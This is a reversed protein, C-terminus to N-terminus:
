PWVRRLLTTLYPDLADRWAIWDHGGRTEAFTVEYGQARLADAMSRNNALNEEDAGCTMVVPVAPGAAARRVRSVFRLIRRYRAFGSEQRDFRHQFFSGSQLFLGAFASPARRQAHLMALAGLSAGAGIVPASGAVEPLIRTTLLRAYAVSASYQEFRDAPPLLVLRFPRVVGAAVQAAAYVALGAHREYDAGDHVVLVRDGAGPPSWVRAVLGAVPVDNLAGAVREM